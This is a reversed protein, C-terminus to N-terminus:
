ASQPRTPSPPPLRRTSAARGSSSAGPAYDLPSDRVVEYLDTNTSAPDAQTCLGRLMVIEQVRMATVALGNAAATETMM